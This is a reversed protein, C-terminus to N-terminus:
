SGSSGAVRLVEAVSTVGDRIKELGDERLTRMGQKRAYDRMEDASNKELILKRLGDDVPM